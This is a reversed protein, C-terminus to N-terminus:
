SLSRPLSFADDRKVDSAVHNVDSEVVMKEVDPLVNGNHVNSNFFFCFLFCFRNNNNNVDSAFKTFTELLDVYYGNECLRCSGTCHKEKM